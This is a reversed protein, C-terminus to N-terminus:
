WKTRLSIFMKDLNLLAWVYLMKEEFNCILRICDTHAVTDEFEHDLLEM